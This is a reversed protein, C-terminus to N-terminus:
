RIRSELSRPKVRQLKRKLLLCMMRKPIIFGAIRKWIATNKRSVLDNELKLLSGKKSTDYKELLEIVHDFEDAIKQFRIREGSTDMKEFPIDDSELADIEMAGIDQLFELTGKRHKKTSYINLRRMEVIAM